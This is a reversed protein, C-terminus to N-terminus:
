KAAADVAKATAAAPGPFAKSSEGVATADSQPAHTFLAGLTSVLTMVAPLLINGATFAVHGGAAVYQSVPQVFAGLLTVTFFKKWNM